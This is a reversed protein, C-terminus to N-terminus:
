GKLTEFVLAAVKKFFDPNVADTDVLRGHVACVKEYFKIIQSWEGGTGPQHLARQM